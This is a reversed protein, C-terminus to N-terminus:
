SFRFQSQVSFLSEPTYVVIVMDASFEKAAQSVTKDYIRIDITDLVAFNLAMFCDVPLSFSDEVILVRKKSCSPDLNEIRNHAQDDGVYAAYRNGTKDSPDLYSRDILAESFGGSRTFSEYGPNRSYVFSTDFRPTILYFDDYGVYHVNFIRTQSGVYFDPFLTFDFNKRDTNRGYPDVDTWGHGNKLKEIIGVYAEFASTERWHHDSAYFWEGPPIGKERFLERCDLIDAAGKIGDLFADLNEETHNEFGEPLVSYGKILKPPASVYILGSGMAKLKESLACLRRTMSEMDKESVKGTVAHMQRQSSRVARSSGQLAANEAKKPCLPPIPRSPDILLIVITGASSSVYDSAYGESRVIDFAHVASFQQALLSLVSADTLNHVVTLSVASLANNVLDVPSCGDLLPSGGAYGDPKIFAGEFSTDPTIFGNGAGGFCAAFRGSKRSYAYVTETDPIGGSVKAYEAAYEGTHDTKVAIKEFEGRKMGDGFVGKAAGYSVTYYEELRNILASYIKFSGEATFGGDTFRFDEKTVDAFDQPRMSDIFYTDLAASLAEENQASRDKEIGFVASKSPVAAYLFARGENDCVNYLGLLAEKQTSADKEESVFFCGDDTKIYSGANEDKRHTDATPGADSSCSSLFILASAALSFVCAAIRSNRKM